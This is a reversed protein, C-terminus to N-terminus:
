CNEGANENFIEDKPSIKTFASIFFGDMGFDGPFIQIYGKEGGLEEPIIGQLSKLRFPLNKEIWEVNEDNEKHNVTCTSFILTGGPKVYRGVTNLIKKQLAALEVISKETVHYKIDNKKGIVGLGSCPLDAMVIDAKEEVSEDFITADWVKTVINEADLRKVNDKVLQLKYPTIDRAEVTGTKKLLEAMHLSKGGPAACVDIIYDGEKPSAALGAIMSSMDQVTIMGNRFVELTELSDYGSLFLAKDYLPSCRVNIKDKELSHVIEQVSAKTINCRVTTPRDIYFNKLMDETQEMGYQRIWMQIMWKPMSYTVSLRELPEQPYEIQEINKSINRVIGNVFGKLGFFKRKEALKVAENCIASAPISKMYKLQYVAMRLIYKIVPKMHNRPTKSFQGIIYDLEIKRELTGQYLRTVFARQQKPLTRYRDLNRKLVIHSKNEETELLMNLVLNRLNVQNGASSTM